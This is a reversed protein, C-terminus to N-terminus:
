NRTVKYYLVNGESPLAVAIENVRTESETVKKSSVDAATNECAPTSGYKLTYADAPWDGPFKLTVNNDAVLGSTIAFTANPAVGEDYANKIEQTFATAKLNYLEEYNTPITFGDRTTTAPTSNATVAAYKDYVGSSEARLVVDDICSTSQVSMKSGSNIAYDSPLSLWQDDCALAGDLAIRCRAREADLLITVRVWEGDNYQKNSLKFFVTGNTSANFYGDQDVAIALPPTSLTSADLEDASCAVKVMMDVSVVGQEAFSGMSREAKGGNVNLAKTHGAGVVGYGNAPMSTTGDAVIVPADDESSTLTWGSYPLTTAGVEISADEFTEAVIAPDAFAFACTGLAIALAMNTKRM